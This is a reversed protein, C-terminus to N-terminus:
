QPNAIQTIFDLQTKRYASIRAPAGKKQADTLMKKIDWKDRASLSNAQLDKTQELDKLYKGIQELSLVAKKSKSQTIRPTRPTRPTRKKQTVDVLETPPQAPEYIKLFAQMKQFKGKTVVQFGYAAINDRYKYHLDASIPYADYVTKQETTLLEYSNKKFNALFYQPALGYKALTSVLRELYDAKIRKSTPVYKGNLYAIEYKITNEEIM